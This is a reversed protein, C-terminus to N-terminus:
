EVLIKLYLDGAIQAKSGTLGKGKIRLRTNSNIGAPIKIKLRETMGNRQFAIEKQSGAQAERSTIYMVFNLDTGKRGETLRAYDKGTVKSLLYNAAKKALQTFTGGPSLPKSIPREFIPKTGRMSVPGFFVFGFFYGKGGFFMNDIFRNNFKLGMRSFDRFLDQFVDGAHPNQFLDRFIDEPRYDFDRMYSQSRWQDYKRRKEKDILVGYAESIDKFKEEATKDGPNRDPHYKLALQRYAKKIEEDAAFNDINLIEYYDKYM